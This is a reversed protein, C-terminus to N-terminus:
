NFYIQLNVDTLDVFNNKMWFVLLGTNQKPNQAVCHSKGGWILHKKDTDGRWKKWAKWQIEGGIMTSPCDM